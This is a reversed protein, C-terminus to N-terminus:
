KNPTFIFSDLSSLWGWSLNAGFNLLFGSKIKKLTTKGKKKLNDEKKKLKSTTEMKTLDDEMKKQTSTKKWKTVGLHTWVCINMGRPFGKRPSNLYSM